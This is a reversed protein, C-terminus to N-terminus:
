ASPRQSQLDPGRLWLLGYLFFVIASLTYIADVSSMATVAYAVVPGLAAGIDVVLAYQMLLARGGNTAATASAAAESLTTLSTAMLQMGLISAFWFFLPIPLSLLMFFFAVLILSWALMSIWGFRRDALKGIFPALGPEWGFRIAQCLGALTTAGLSFGFLTLTNDMHRAILPSLTSAIVGQTAFAILGGTIVLHLTLPTSLMAKFGASLSTSQQQRDANGKPIAYLTPVIALATFAGFVLATTELDAMDALVGGALMGALSGLRYLGNYLGNLHGRNDSSAVRLICFLSGLRLFTWSLGWLVRAVLWLFFSDAIGYLLTTLTALFVAIVIGTRESIHRYVFGICPNLPLRVIRNVSLLIGVEWLSSLGATKYHMPLVIYLMSDGLLCCATILAFLIVHRQPTSTNMIFLTAHPPHLAYDAIGIIKPSQLM